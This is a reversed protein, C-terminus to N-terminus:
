ACYNVLADAAGTIVLRGPLARSCISLASPPSRWSADTPRIGMSQMPSACRSSRQTQVSREANKSPESLLDDATVYVVTLLLDLNADM